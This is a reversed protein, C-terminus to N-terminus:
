TTEEHMYITIRTDGYSRIDICRLGPLHEPLVAERATEAVVRVGPALIEAISPHKLVFPIGDCKYPPDLFVLDFRKSSISQGQPIGQKLDRKLIEASHRYGCRTLNKNILEIAEQTHDIFAAFEAGRSLAELGLSGTGSFLDLVTLGTLNQGMISFIAERVRDSTPRIAAGRPVATLTRGKSRGGTIRM